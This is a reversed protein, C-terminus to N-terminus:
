VHIAGREITEWVKIPFRKRSHGGNTEKVYVWKYGKKVEVLRWGSGIKPQGEDHFYVRMQM